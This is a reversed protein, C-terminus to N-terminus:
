ARWSPPQDSVARVRLLSVQPMEDVLTRVRVRVPAPRCVVPHAPPSRATVPSLGNAQDRRQGQTPSNAITTRLDKASTRTLVPTAYHRFLLRQYPICMANAAKVSGRLTTTETSPM